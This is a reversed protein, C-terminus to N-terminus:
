RKLWMMWDQLIKSIPEAQDQDGDLMDSLVPQGQYVDITGCSELKINPSEGQSPDGDLMGSSKSQAQYNPRLLPDKPSAM